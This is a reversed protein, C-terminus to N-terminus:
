LFKSCHYNNNLNRHINKLMLIPEDRPLRSWIDGSFLCVLDIHLIPEDRPLRNWIDGSCLCVLDIECLIISNSVSKLYSFM